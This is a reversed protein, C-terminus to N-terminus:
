SNTTAEFNSMSCSIFLYQYTRCKRTAICVRYSAPTCLVHTDKDVRAFTRVASPDGANALVEVMALKMETPLSNWTGQRMTPHSSTTVSATCVSAIQVSEFLRVVALDM